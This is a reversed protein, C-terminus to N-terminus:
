RVDCHRAGAAVGAAIVMFIVIIVFCHTFRDVEHHDTHVAYSGSLRVRVRNARVFPAANLMIQLKEAM